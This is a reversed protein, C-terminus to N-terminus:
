VNGVWGAAVCTASYRRYTFLRYKDSLICVYVKHLLVDLTDVDNLTDHMLNRKAIVLHAPFM